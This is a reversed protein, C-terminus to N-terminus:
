TEPHHNWLNKIKMGVQHFSGVQSINKPHTSVVLQTQKLFLKGCKRSKSTPPSAKPASTTSVQAGSLFSKLLAKTAKTPQHVIKKLSDYFFLLLGPAIQKPDRLPM